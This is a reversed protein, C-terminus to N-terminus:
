HTHVQLLTQHGSAHQTPLHQVDDAAHGLQDEEVEGAIGQERGGDGCCGGAGRGDRWGGTLVFTLVMIIIYSKTGFPTCSFLVSTSSFLTSVIVNVPHSQSHTIYKKSHVCTFPSPLAARREQSHSMQSEIHNTVIHQVSCM